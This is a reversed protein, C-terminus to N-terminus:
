ENNGDKQNKRVYFWQGINYYAINDGESNQIRLYGDDIEWTSNEPYKHDGNIVSVIVYKEM